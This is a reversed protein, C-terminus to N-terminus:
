NANSKGKGSTKPLTSDKVIRSMMKDYARRYCFEDCFYSTRPFNAKDPGFYDREPSTIIKECWACYVGPCTCMFLDLYEDFLLPDKLVKNAFEITKDTSYDGAEIVSFREIFRNLTKRLSDRWVNDFGETDDFYEAPTTDTDMAARMDGGRFLIYDQVRTIAQRETPTKTDQM